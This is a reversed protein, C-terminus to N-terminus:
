VEQRRERIMLDSALLLHCVFYTEEAKITVVVVIEYMSIQLKSVDCFM